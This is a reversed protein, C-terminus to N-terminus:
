KKLTVNGRIFDLDSTKGWDVNKPDVKSTSRHGGGANSEPEVRNRKREGGNDVPQRERIGLTEARVRARIRPMITKASEVYASVIKSRWSSGFNEKGARTWLSNMKTTHSTDKVLALTIQTMVEKTILKKMGDAMEEKPDLGNLIAKELISDGSTTVDTYLSSYRENRWSQREKDVTDDKEVKKIEPLKIEREGSAVKLDGFLHQAIVLAANKLNENENRLGSDYLNRTMNVFEPTIVQYYLDKDMKKISPLFHTALSPIVTDGLGQISKLVGSIDEPKGSELATKLEDLAAIDDVAEKAEEVTAFIERYEKEHFILHRFNPFDKFFNPYKKAVEKYQPIEVEKDEKGEKGEEDEHEEGTEDLNEEENEDGTGPEDVTIEKNGKGKGGKGEKGEESDPTEDDQLGALLDAVTEDELGPM